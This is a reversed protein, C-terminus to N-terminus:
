TATCRLQRQIEVALTHHLNKHLIIFIKRNKCTNVYILGRPDIIKAKPKKREEGEHLCFHFPLTIKPSLSTKKLM